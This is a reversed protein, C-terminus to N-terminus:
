RVVGSSLWPATGRDAIPSSEAFFDGFMPRPPGPSDGLPGAEDDSFFDITALGLRIRAARVEQRKLRSAARHAEEPDDVGLDDSDTRTPSSNDGPVHSSARASAALHRMRNGARVAHVAARWRRRHNERLAESIDQTPQSGPQALWPHALAQRATIRQAPDVTLCCKVFAKAPDSIRDWHKSHFQVNGERTAAALRGPDDNRFPTYGCLLTYTIVGLSWLDVPTGHGQRSLIEPAAYGLSGAVSTLVEEPTRLARAIGFDVLVVDADQAKSRFLINEPKVDRHVIGHDHLYALASAVSRILDAADRETFKGRKVLCDFLEGGDALEFVLYYKDRSEFWDLLRVIHRHPPSLSALVSIESEVFETKGRLVKKPIVKVAVKQGPQARSEAAGFSRDGPTVTGPPPSDRGSRSSPPVTSTRLFVEAEHAAAHGPDAKRPSSPGGPAGLRTALRVTGFTGEGLITSFQYLKKRSYSDPQRGLLNKVNVMAAPRLPRVARLAPRLPRRQDSCATAGPDCWDAPLSLYPGAAIRACHAPSARRHVTPRFSPGLPAARAADCCWM